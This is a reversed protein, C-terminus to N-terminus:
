WRHAGPRQPPSDTKQRSSPSALESKATLRAWPLCTSHGARGALTATPLMTKLKTNKMTRRELLGVSCAPNGSGELVGRPKPRQGVAPAPVTGRPPAEPPAKVEPGAQEGPDLRHGLPRSVRPPPSRWALALAPRPGPSPLAMPVTSSGGSVELSVSVWALGEPWWPTLTLPACPSM